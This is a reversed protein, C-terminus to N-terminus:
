KKDWLEIKQKKLGSKILEPQSPEFCWTVLLNIRKKGGVKSFHTQYLIGHQEANQQMKHCIRFCFLLRRSFRVWSTCSHWMPGLTKMLQAPKMLSSVLLRPSLHAGRQPSYPAWFPLYSLYVPTITLPSVHHYYDTTLSPHYMIIIGLTSFKVSHYRYYHYIIHFTTRSSVLYHYM